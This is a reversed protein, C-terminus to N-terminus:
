CQIVFSFLLKALHSTNGSLRWVVRRSSGERQPVRQQAGSCWTGLMLQPNLPPPAKAAMPSYSGNKTSPSTSVATASIKRFGGVWYSYGPVFDFHKKPPSCPQLHM